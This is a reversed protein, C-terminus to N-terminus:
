DIAPRHTRIILHTGRAAGLVIVVAALAILWPFGDADTRAVRAASTAIPMPTAAPLPLRAYPLKAAAFPRLSGALTNLAAAQAPNARMWSGHVPPERLLGERPLFYMRFSVPRDARMHVTVRFFAAAKPPNTAAGGVPLADLRNRDRTSHCGDQGCVTIMTLEKAAASGPLALVAGAILLAILRTSMNSRRKM